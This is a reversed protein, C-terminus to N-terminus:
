DSISVTETVADREAEVDDIQDNLLAIAASGVKQLYSKEAELIEIKKQSAVQALTEIEM